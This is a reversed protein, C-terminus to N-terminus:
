IQKNCYNKKKGFELNFKSTVAKKDVFICLFLQLLLSEMVDIQITDLNISTIDTIFGCILHFLYISFFIKKKDWILYFLSKSLWFM